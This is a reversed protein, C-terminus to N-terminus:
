GKIMAQWLKLAQVTPLVDHTRIISAGQQVALLHAAVGAVLREEVSVGGLVEGLVRKRSLGVLLPLSFHEQLQWTTNLLLDSSCM